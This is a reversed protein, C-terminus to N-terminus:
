ANFNKINNCLRYLYDSFREIEDDNFGEFMSADLRDIVNKTNLAIQEGKKTLQVVNLRTDAENETRTILGKEELKRVSVAVAAPSIEFHQAIDRQSTTVDQRRALFMIIRHQSRHAGFESVNCEFARHHSRAACLFLEVIRHKDNTENNM